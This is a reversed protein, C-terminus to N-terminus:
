VKRCTDPEILELFLSRNQYSMLLSDFGYFFRFGIDYIDDLFFIIPSFLALFILISFVM